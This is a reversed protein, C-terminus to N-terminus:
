PVPTYTVGMYEIRDGKLWVIDGKRRGGAGSLGFTFAHDSSLPRLVQREPSETPGLELLSLGPSVKLRLQTPILDTAFKPKLTVQYDGAAARWRRPPSQPPVKEGLIQRNVKTGGGNRAVVVRRGAITQFAIQLNPDSDTRWWKDSMQTFTANTVEGGKVLSLQLSDGDVNVTSYGVYGAYIGQAERLEVDTPTRPGLDPLSVPPPKTVGTKATYALELARSAIADAVASGGVTNTSVFVGLESTPNSRCCRSTGPRPATTASHEGSGPTRAPVVVFRHPGTRRHGLRDSRDDDASADAGEPGAGGRGEWCRSASTGKGALTGGGVLTRLYNAMDQASSLISGATWGNVYERPDAKMDGTPQGDPGVAPSYNRTMTRSPALTDDFSSSPMDMRGFLTRATRDAYPKGTVNEVLAQLLVYGSNNYAWLTNVRREPPMNALTGMLWQHFNRDPKKMTILGYFIDGPVGSHHDLISRVTITNNRFRPLLKLAPVYKTISADLDVKGKEVLQMVSIAAFTKSLSGIHFLTRADVPRRDRRDAWGFGRAMITRNGDVLAVTAGVVGSEAMMAPIESHLTAVVQEYDVDDAAGVAATHDPLDAPAPAAALSSAVLAITGITLALFRSSVTM